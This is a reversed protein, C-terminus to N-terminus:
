REIRRALFVGSGPQVGSETLRSEGTIDTGIFNGEVVNNSHTTLDVNGGFNNGSILNARAPRRAASRSWASRLSYSAEM